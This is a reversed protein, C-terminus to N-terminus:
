MKWIIAIIFNQKEKTKFSEVFAEDEVGCFTSIETHKGYQFVGM